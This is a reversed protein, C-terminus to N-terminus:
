PTPTPSPEGEGADADETPEESPEDGADEEGPAAGGEGALARCEQSAAEGDRQLDQVADLAEQLRRADQEVVALAIEDVSGSIAENAEAAALCSPPVDGSAGAPTTPTPSASPRPEELADSGELVGTMLLVGGVAVTTLAGVFFGVFAPGTRGRRRGSRRPASAGADREAM